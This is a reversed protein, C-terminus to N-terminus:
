RLIEYNQRLHTKAYFGVQQCANCILKPQIHQPIYGSYFQVNFLDIYLYLKIDYNQSLILLKIKTM